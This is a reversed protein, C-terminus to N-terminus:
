LREFIPRLWPCAEDLRQARGRKAHERIDHVANGIEVIDIDEAAGYLGLLQLTLEELWADEPKQLAPLAM